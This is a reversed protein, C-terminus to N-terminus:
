VIELNKKAKQKVADENAFFRFAIYEEEPKGFYNCQVRM